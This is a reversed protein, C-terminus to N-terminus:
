GKVGSNMISAKLQKSFILSILIVPLITVLSIGMLANQKTSVNNAINYLAVNLTWLEQRETVMWAWFFDNWNGLFTQLAILSIISKSLPMCIRSYLFMNSAGDLRAAEFYSGPIRDFFGKFLYVYFGYPYLFPLLLAAYNNYAGMNRYMILQPLMISAFPIMQAGLFFLLAFRAAKPRLLRSIVFGCLSCLLVQAIIAFGIVIVTNGVFAMFGVRSITENNEYMYNPLKMYHVFSELLLFNNKSTECATLTGNLPFKKDFVESLKTQTEAQLETPATHKSLGNTDFDYGIIDSVRQARDKYLLTDHKLVTGEYVGYDKELQLESQHARAYFITKGDQVGYFKTEFISDRNLKTFVGFMASVMDEQLKAELESDTGTFGTYDVTLSLSNASDPLLKPPADYIKTNDKMANSITLAFPFLILLLSLVTVTIAVIQLSLDSKSLRIKTSKKKKMNM